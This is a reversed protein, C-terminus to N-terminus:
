LVDGVGVKHNQNHPMLRFESDRMRYYSSLLLQEEPTHGLVSSKRPKRDRPAALLGLDAPGLWLAIARELTLLTAPAAASLQLM